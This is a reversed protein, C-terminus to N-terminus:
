AEVVCAACTGFVELQNDLDSFGHENAIRRAWQDVPQDELEVSLGCRRCVLHHHHRKSWQRYLAEGEATRM